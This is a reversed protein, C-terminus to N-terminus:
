RVFDIVYLSDQIELKKTVVNLIMKSDDQIETLCCFKTNLRFHENSRLNRLGITNTGISFMKILKIIFHLPLVIKKIQSNRNM